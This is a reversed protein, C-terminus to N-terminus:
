VRKLTVGPVPYVSEFGCGGDSKKCRFVKTERPRVVKVKGCKPCKVTETPYVRNMVPRVGRDSAQHMPKREKEKEEIIKNFSIVNKTVLDRDWHMGRYAVFRDLIRQSVIYPFIDMLRSFIITVAEEFEIRKEGICYDCILDMQVKILNFVEEESRQAVNCLQHRGEEWCSIIDLRDWGDSSLIEFIKKKGYLFMRKLTDLTLDGLIQDM